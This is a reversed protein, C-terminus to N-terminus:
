DHNQEWDKPRRNYGIEDFPQLRHLWTSKLDKLTQRMNIVDAADKKWLIQYDFDEGAQAQWDQQLPTGHYFDKNLNLQYFAWRNHLNAATDIFIKHNRRNQIQIVGYYTPRLKYAQQLQQKRNSEM